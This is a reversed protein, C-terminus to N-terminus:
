FFGPIGIFLDPWGLIIEKCTEKKKKGGTGDKGPGLGQQQLAAYGVFRWHARTIDGEEARGSEGCLFLTHWAQRVWAPAENCKNRDARLYLFGSLLPV